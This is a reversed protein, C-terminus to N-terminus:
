SAPVPTTSIVIQGNGGLLEQSATGSDISVSVGTLVSNASLTVSSVGPASVTVAAKSCNVTSPLANSGVAISPSTGCLADVGTTALKERIDSVAMNQTNTLRQGVAARSAAYTLGLGIAAMLLIGILAELLAEGGQRNPHARETCIAPQRNM